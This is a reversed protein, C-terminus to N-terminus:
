KAQPKDEEPPKTSPPPSTETSAKGSRPNLNKGSLFNWGSQYRPDTAPVWGLDIVRGRRTKPGSGPASDTPAPKSQRRWARVLYPLFNPLPERCIPDDDRGEEEIIKAV